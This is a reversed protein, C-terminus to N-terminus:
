GNFGYDIAFNYPNHSNQRIRYCVFDDTEYYVEMENPYLKRFEEAWFYMHSMTIWRGTGQYASIDGSGDLAKNAGEESVARNGGDGGYNVPKKEIYFYVTPTDIIEETEELPEEMGLLFDITEYHSGYEEIMHCENGASVITWTFNKGKNDKLINETCIVAENLNYEEPLIVPKKIGGSVSAYVFAGIFVAFSAANAAKPKKCLLLLGYLASDLFLGVAASLVYALYEETTSFGIVPILLVCIAFLVLYQKKRREKFFSLLFLLAPFVFIMGFEGPLALVFQSYSAPDFVAFVAYGATTLYPIFVSKCISKMFILLALHLVVTQVIGFLRLLTMTKIGFVSHLYHIICQFGLPSIGDSFISNSGMENIQANIGIIDACGYGYNEFSNQGYVFFVMDIVVLFAAAELVWLRREKFFCRFGPKKRQAGYITKVTLDGEMIRRLSDVFHSFLEFSRGKSKRYLLVIFPLLMGIVLTICCSLRLLELVLVLCIIYFNGVVFGASLKAFVPFVELRKRLLIYPLLLASTFYAATIGILQLATLMGMSM